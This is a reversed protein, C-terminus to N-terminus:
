HRSWRCFRETLSTCQIGRVDGDADYEDMLANNMDQTSINELSYKERLAAAFKARQLEGNGTPDFLKFFSKLVHPNVTAWKGPSSGRVRQEVKHKLIEKM